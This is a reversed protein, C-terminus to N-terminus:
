LRRWVQHCHPICQVELRVKRMLKLISPRIGLVLNQHDKVTISGTLPVFIMDLNNSKMKIEDLNINEGKVDIFNNTKDITQILGQNFTQSDYIRAALEDTHGLAKTNIKRGSNVEQIVKNLRQIARRHSQIFFGEVIDGEELLPGDDSQDAVVAEQKGCGTFMSVMLVVALMLVVYKSKFMKM